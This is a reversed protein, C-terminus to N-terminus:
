GSLVARVQGPSLPAQSHGGHHDGRQARSAARGWGSYGYVGSPPTQSRPHGEPPWKFCISWTTFPFNSDPVITFATTTCGDPGRHSRPGRRRSKFLVLVPNSPPLELVFQAKCTNEQHSPHLHSAHVMSPVVLAGTVQESRKLVLVFIHVNTLSITEKKYSIFSHWKISTLESFWSLSFM